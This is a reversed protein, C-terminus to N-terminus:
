FKILPLLQFILSKIFEFQKSIKVAEETTIFQQRNMVKDLKEINTIGYADGVFENAIIFGDYKGEKRIADALKEVGM